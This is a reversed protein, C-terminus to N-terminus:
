RCSCKGDSPPAPSAGLNSARGQGARMRPTPTVRPLDTGALAREMWRLLARPESLEVHLGSYFRGYAIPNRVTGQNAEALLGAAGYVPSRNLLNVVDQSVQPGVKGLWRNRWSRARAGVFFADLEESALDKQWRNQHISRKIYDYKSYPFTGPREVPSVHIPGRPGRLDPFRLFAERFTIREEVEAAFLIRRPANSSPSVGFIIDGKRVRPRMPVKCPGFYLRDGWQTPVNCFHAQEFGATVSTMVYVFGTAVEREASSM